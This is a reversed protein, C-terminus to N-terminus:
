RINIITQTIADETQKTGHYIQAGVPEIKAYAYVPSTFNQTIGSNSGPVDQWSKITIYHRLEGATPENM